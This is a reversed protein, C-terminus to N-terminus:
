INNNIEFLKSAAINYYAAIKEITAFSPTRTKNMNELNHYHGPSLGLNKAIESKTLHAELRLKKLNYKFVTELYTAEKNM